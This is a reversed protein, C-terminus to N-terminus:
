GQRPKRGAAGPQRRLVLRAGHDDASSRVVLGHGIAIPACLRAAARQRVAGRRRRRRTAPWRHDGAGHRATAHTRLAGHALAFRADRPLVRLRRRLGARRRHNGAGGRATAYTRPAGHQLVPCANRPLGGLLRLLLRIEPRGRTRAPFARRNRAVAAWAEAIRTGRAWAEATRTGRAWTEATRCAM